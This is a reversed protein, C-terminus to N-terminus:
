RLQLRLTTELDAIAQDESLFKITTMGMQRAPKLNVGLDDIFVAEHPQIGLRTCCVEFFGVEPKRVGIRWSEVVEDFLGFVDALGDHSATGTRDPAGAFNNTALGVLYRQRCRRVAEIMAPRPKGALLALVDAGNVDYGAERAENEFEVSFAELSLEGREIRAWANGHHDRANLNRLFDHPLGSAREYAAFAEFPSASLVGGFDFLVARVGTEPDGLRARDRAQEDSPVAM